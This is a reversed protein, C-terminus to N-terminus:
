THTQKEQAHTLCLPAEKTCMLKEKTPKLAKNDRPNINVEMESLFIIIISTNQRVLGGKIM